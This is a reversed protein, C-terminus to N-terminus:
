PRAPKQDIQTGFISLIQMGLLIGKPLRRLKFAFLEAVSATIPFIDISDEDWEWGRTLSHTLLNDTELARLFEIVYLPLGDTKQAVLESLSKVRRKPVHLCESLMENLTTIDMGTLLINTVNVSDDNQLKLLAKGLLPYADVANERYSGVFMVHEMINKADASSFRLAESHDGRFLATLLTLSLPDAWQLDDIFFFAPTEESSIATLLASFLETMIATNVDPTVSPLAVGLIHHLSPIHIALIELGEPHILRRIRAHLQQFGSRRFYEDFAHAIISLPESHVLRDFKCHLIKWGKKDLDKGVIRVLRSKGAGPSGSVMVIETKKRRLRALGDFIIDDDRISAVRDAADVLAKMDAGRGYLKSGFDLKWKDPNSGHLFKDPYRIMQELDSLVDRFSSFSYHSRFMQGHGNDLLDSVFRCLPFPIGADLLAATHGGYDKAESTTTRFNKRILDSIEDEDHVLNDKDSLGLADSISSESTGIDTPFSFRNMRPRNDMMCMAYAMTGLTSLALRNNLAEDNGGKVFAISDRWEVFSASINQTQTHEHVMVNDITIFEPYVFIKENVVSEGDEGGQENRDINYNGHVIEYVLSFMIQVMEGLYQKQSYNLRKDVGGEGCLTKRQLAIWDTLKVSRSIPYTPTEDADGRGGVKGDEDGDSRSTPPLLSNPSFAQKPSVSLTNKIFVDEGNGISGCAMCLVNAALNSDDGEDDGEGELNSM